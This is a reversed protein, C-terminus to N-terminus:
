SRWPARRFPHALLGLYTKPAPTDLGLDSTREASEHYTGFLHDIWPALNAYNGVDRDRLHHVHHHRPSGFLFALPGLPVDVNM